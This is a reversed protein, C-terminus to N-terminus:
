LVQLRELIGRLEQAGHASEFEALKDRAIANVARTRGFFCKVEFMSLNGTVFSQMMSSSRPMLELRFFFLVGSDRDLLIHGMPSQYTTWSSALTVVASHLRDLFSQTASDAPGPPNTQETSPSVAASVVDIIACAAKGAAVTLRSYEEGVIFEDYVVDAYEPVESSARLTPHVHSCLSTDMLLEAPPTPTLMRAAERFFQAQRQAAEERSVGPVSGRLALLVDDSAPRDQVRQTLCYRLTAEQGAQLNVSDRGPNRDFAYDVVNKHEVAVWTTVKTMKCEPFPELLTFVQFMVVAAAYVDGHGDWIGSTLVEPPIYEPSGVTTQPGPCGICGVV